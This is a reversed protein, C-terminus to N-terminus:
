VSLPSSLSIKSRKMALKSSSGQKLCSSEEIINLRNVIYDFSLPLERELIKRKEDFCIWMLSKPTSDM